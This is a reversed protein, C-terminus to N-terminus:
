LTKSQQWIAELADLAAAQGTERQAARAAAEVPAFRRVFRRNAKDLAAEADIELHRCINVVSFLVDGAEHEIARREGTPLAALLEDHEEQLKELAGSVDPWDFGISSARSGIKQAKKLAPLAKPIDALVSDSNRETDKIAQWNHRVEAATAATGDAFVHPHRREMKASIASVVDDFDFLGQESAMQSHFVVQLLLDGLEKCLEAHDEREIADVVEYAEELTYPAISQFDQALDWPCGGDPDRLQKMIGLLRDIAAM